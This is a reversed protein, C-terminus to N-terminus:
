AAIPDLLLVALLMRMRREQERSVDWGCWTHPASTPVIVGSMDRSSYGQTPEIPQDCPTPPAAGFKMPKRVMPDYYWWTWSVAAWLVAPLVVFTIALAGWVPHGARFHHVAAAIDSGVDMVYLIIGCVFVIPIDLLGHYRDYLHKIRNCRTHASPTPTTSRPPTVCSPHTHEQIPEVPPEQWHDIMTRTAATETNSDPQVDDNQPDGHGVEDQPLPTRTAATETNSDPPVDDNPPDGHGVEDQPQSTRTAATETNSHPPVDDNQPDGRDMGDDVHETARLVTMETGPENNADMESVQQQLVCLM